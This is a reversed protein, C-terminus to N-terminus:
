RELYADGPDGDAPEVPKAPWGAASVGLFQWTAPVDLAAGLAVPDPPDVLGPSVLVHVLGEATLAEATAAIGDMQRLVGAMAEPDDEDLDFADMPVTRFAVLLVPAHAVLDEDYPGPLVAALAARAAPSQVRVYRWLDPESAQGRMVAVARRVPPDPVPEPSLEEGALRVALVDRRGAARAEATGLAFMDSELPRVLAAAGPGDDAPLPGLGRVVAVPVGSTKGKVLDAAGALEDIVAAATVSLDNGYADTQGRHDRLPAIGAAGIAVDTQGDRWPRGMTDTVVVAVRIGLRAALGARLRRASADPDLPLLALRDSDVNSADVGAAAMVLGHRTRVIRTRGRSAVVAATEADVAALRAAERGAPDPPVPVLRGEAKSVIKSTVVLVDDDRLDAGLGAVLAALDDGPRVEGIGALPVVTIPEAM